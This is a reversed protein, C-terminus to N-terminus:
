PKRGWPTESNWNLLRERLEDSVDKQEDTKALNRFEYPDNAVDFFQHGDDAIAHAGHEGEQDLQAGYLHTLTRIGIEWTPSEIFAANEGVSEAEGRLVPTLDTGQLQEPIPVGALALTTPAVDVLSTVQTNVVDRPELGAPWHYIMPIRISEEHLHGKNFLHHSGLHDGHDSTFVVITNEALGNEELLDMLKGVQDDAWTTLGYYLATLKKLDFGDPLKDTYPLHELYYLYDWLYISFWEEDHAMKGDKYVNPRMPVEDPSYMNLYKEPADILPMHPQSISYFLFFPKDGRSRIYTELERMELDPSFENAVFREGTSRIYLQDTYRHSVKPYLAHDFGLVTPDDAIHWKGILATDYGASRLSDAITPAPFLSREQRPEACNLLYSACTRTYQGSIVENRAPTCLPSNSCAIEFRVGSKALRDMNPTRVVSNGYCGVEFARLQDCFCLVVNPKDSQVAM